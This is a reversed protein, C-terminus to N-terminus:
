IENIGLFSRVNPIFAEAGYKKFVPRVMKEFNRVIVGEVVSSDLVNYGKREVYDSYWMAASVVIAIEQQQNVKISSFFDLLEKRGNTGRVDRVSRSRSVYRISDKVLEGRVYVASGYSDHLNYTRNTYTKQRYAELAAKYGLSACVGVLDKVLRDKIVTSYRSNTAM